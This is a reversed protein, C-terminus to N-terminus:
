ATQNFFQPESGKPPCCTSGSEPNWWVTYQTCTTATEATNNQSIVYM